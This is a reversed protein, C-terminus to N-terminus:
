VVEEWSLADDTYAKADTLTTADGSKLLDEIKKLTNYETSVGDKLDDIASQIQDVVSTAGVRDNLDNLAEAIVKEDAILDEAFAVTKSTAVGNEKFDIKVIGDSSNLTLKNKTTGVETVVDAGYQRQAILIGGEPNEVGEQGPRLASIAGDAPLSIVKKTPDWDVKGALANAMNTNMEPIVTDAVYTLDEQLKIIKDANAKGKSGEYATGEVEGLAISASIEVMMTGGWRYLVEARGEADPLVHVYITDSAPAIGADWGDATKTYLLNDAKVFYMDGVVAAMNDLEAKTDVFKQVEFVRALEGNLQSVPVKGNADLSALGNAQGKSAMFDLISQMQEVNIGVPIGSAILEHTDLAVYFGNGHVDANYKEKLGKYFGIKSM